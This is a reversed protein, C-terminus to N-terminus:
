RTDTHHRTRHATTYPALRLLHYWTPLHVFSACDNHGADHFMRTSTAFPMLKPIHVEHPLVADREAFGILVNVHSDRNRLTQLHKVNNLEENWTTMWGFYGNTIHDMADYMSSFPTILILSHVKALWDLPAHAVVYSAVAAGMSIGVVDITDYNEDFTYAHQEADEMFAKHLKFPEACRAGFNAYEFVLIDLSDNVRQENLLRDFAHAVSAATGANGYFVIALRKAPAQQGVHLFAQPIGTAHSCETAPHFLLKPELFRYWVNYAAYACTVTAITFLLLPKM